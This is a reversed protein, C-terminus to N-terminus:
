FPFRDESGGNNHEMNNKLPTVVTGGSCSLKILGLDQVVEM